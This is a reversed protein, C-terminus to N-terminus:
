PEHSFQAKGVTEISVSKRVCIQYAAFGLASGAAIDVLVHQRTLLTAVLILTAWAVVGIEYRRTWGLARGVDIVCLCSYVAFAAHLSPFAHYPSDISILARYLPDGALAMPRSCITPWFFFIVVAFASIAVVGFSYRCIQERNNMLFPGIPMLAYISLYIWVAVPIFPIARDVFTLPMETAQFFHIRQLTIYPTWVIVNLAVLLFIKLRLETKIRRILGNQFDSIM